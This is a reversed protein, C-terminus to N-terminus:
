SRYRYRVGKETAETSTLCKTFNRRFNNSTIIYVVFDICFKLYYLLQCVSQAVYFHSNTTNTYNEGYIKALLIGCLRAVYSPMYLLIFVSSVWVLLKTSRVQALTLTNEASNNRRLMRVSHNFHGHHRRFKRITLIIKLNLGVVSFFPVVFVLFTDVYTFYSLFEYYSYNVECRPHATITTFFSHSYLILAFLTTMSIVIFSKKRNCLFSAKFPFCVVISRETMMLVVYWASLFSGIYSMYVVVSCYYPLTSIVPFLAMFSLLLTSVLFLTDVLALAALYQSCPQYRYSTCVFVLLSTVDGIIGLVCIVPVGYHDMAKVVMPITPTTLEGHTSNDTVDLTINFSAQSENSLPSIVFEEIRDM